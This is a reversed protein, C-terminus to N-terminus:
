FALQPYLCRFLSQENMFPKPPVQNHRAIDCTNFGM